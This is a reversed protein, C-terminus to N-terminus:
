SVVKGWIRGFGHMASLFRCLSNKWPPPLWDLVDASIKTINGDTETRSHQLDVCYCQYGAEAWPKVMNTSKDFCSIVIKSTM